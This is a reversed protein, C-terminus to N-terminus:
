SPVSPAVPHALEFPEDAVPVIDDLVDQMVVLADACRFLSTSQADCFTVSLLKSVHLLHRARCSSSGETKSGRNRKWLELVGIARREQEARVLRDHERKM